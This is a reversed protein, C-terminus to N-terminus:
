QRLYQSYHEALSLIKEMDTLGKGISVKLYAGGFAEYMEYPIIDAFDDYTFLGFKLIDLKMQTEDYKMTEADIEFINILGETAGPMSLMGNVFYCLHGFTVPSWARNEEKTIDVSVLQVKQLVKSDNVITEKAFWKDIFDSANNERIM